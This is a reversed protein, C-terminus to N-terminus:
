LHARHFTPAVLSSDESNAWNIIRIQFDMAAELKANFGANLPQRKLWMDLKLIRHTAILKKNANM